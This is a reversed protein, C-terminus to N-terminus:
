AAAEQLVQVLRLAWGRAVPVLEGQAVRRSALRLVAPTDIPRAVGGGDFWAGAPVLLPAELAVCWGGVQTAPLTDSHAGALDLVGSGPAWRPLALLPWGPVQLRVAFGAPEFSAPLLLLAGERLAAEAVATAEFTQVLLRARLLPWNGLVGAASRGFPLSALLPAPLTVAAGSCGALSLTLSGTADAAAQADLPEIRRIPQGLWQQLDQLAALAPELALAAAVDGRAGREAAAHAPPLWLTASGAPLVLAFGVAAVTGEVPM